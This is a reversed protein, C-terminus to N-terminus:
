GSWESGVPQFQRMPWERSRSFSFGESRLAHLPSPPGLQLRDPGRLSQELDAFGSPLEDNM